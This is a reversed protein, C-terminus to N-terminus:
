MCVSFTFHISCVLGYNQAQSQLCASYPRGGSFTKTQCRRGTSAGKDRLVSCSACAHLEHACADAALLMGGPTRVSRAAAASTSSPRHAALVASMGPSPATPSGVCLTRGTGVLWFLGVYLLAPYQAVAPCKRMYLTTSTCRRAVATTSQTSKVRVSDLPVRGVAIATHTAYVQDLGVIHRQCLTCNGATDHGGAM